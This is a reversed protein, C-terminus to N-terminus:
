LQLPHEGVPLEAERTAGSIPRNINAFQGGNGTDWQWVRPPVYGSPQNNAPDFDAM